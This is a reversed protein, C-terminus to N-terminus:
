QVIRALHLEPRPPQSGLARVTDLREGVLVADVAVERAAGRCTRRISLAQAIPCLSARPLSTSTSGGLRHVIEVLQPDLQV